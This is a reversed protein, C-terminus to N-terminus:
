CGLQDALDILSEAMVDFGAEPRKRDLHRGYEFPRHVYATRLGCDAAATLDSPHAAVMLCERPELGLIRAAGQYVAPSPKFARVAEGGLMCDFHFGGHRSMDTMLAINANSLMALIFKPRLREFGELVDPWPDLRHWAHNLEDALAVPVDGVGFDALVELLIERHLVDLAVWPREGSRVKEMAPQYGARWADAFAHTDIEPLAAAVDRAVGERWDVVTGFVDFCLARIGSLDTMAVVSAGRAPM